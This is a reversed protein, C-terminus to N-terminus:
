NHSLLYTIKLETSLVMLTLIGIYSFEIVCCSMYPFIVEKVHLPFSIIHYLSESDYPTVVLKSGDKSSGNAGDLNCEKYPTAKFM